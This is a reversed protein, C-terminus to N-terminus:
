GRCYGSNIIELTIPPVFTDESVTFCGHVRFRTGLGFFSVEMWKMSELCDAAFSVPPARSGLGRRSVALGGIRLVAFCFSVCVRAKMSRVLILGSCGLM